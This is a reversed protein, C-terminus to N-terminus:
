ADEEEFLYKDIIPAGAFFKEYLVPSAMVLDKDDSDLPRVFNMTFGTSAQQLTSNLAISVQVVLGIFDQVLRTKPDRKGALREGIGEIVVTSGPAIDFRVKPCSVVLSRPRLTERIYVLHTYQEALEQVSQKSPSSASATATGPKISSNINSASLPAFAVRSLWLPAPIALVLGTKKREDKSVYCQYSKLTTIDPNDVYTLMGSRTMMIVARLMREVSSTAAISSQDEAKIKKQYPTALGLGVPGIIFSDRRPIISFEFMSAMEVLLDWASRQVAEKVPIDILIQQMESRITDLGEKLRLGDYWRSYDSSADGVQSKIKDSVTDLNVKLPGELRRLAQLIPPVGFARDSDLLDELCLLQPPREKENNVIIFFLLPKIIEAWFDKTDGKMLVPYLLSANGLIAPREGLSIFKSGMLANFAYDIISNPHLIGSLIPSFSLDAMTDTAWLQITAAGQVGEPGLQVSPNFGTIYGEFINTPEEPWEIDRSYSGQPRFWIQIKRRVALQDLLKHVPSIENTPLHRGVALQCLAIPIANLQYSLAVQQLPIRTDEDDAFTLWLQFQAPGLTM